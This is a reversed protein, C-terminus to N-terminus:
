FLSALLPSFGDLFCPFGELYGGFLIVFYLHNIKGYSLGEENEIKKSAIPTM